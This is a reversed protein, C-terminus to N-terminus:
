SVRRLFGGPALTLLHQGGRDDVEFASTESLFRVVATAPGPGHEPWVPWGDFATDEVVVFSGLTVFPAYARLEELVHEATHDSDLVVLVREAGELQGRVAEVTGPATSPGTLWTIREHEPRDAARHDVSVVRGHGILGMVDAFFLASGGAHSGTEVLVDPRLETLLEQYIWLDTPCKAAPVGRWHLSQWAGSRFWAINALRVLEYLQEPKLDDLQLGPPLINSM